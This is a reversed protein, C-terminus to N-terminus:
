FQRFSLKHSQKRAYKGNKAAIKRVIKETANKGSSSVYDTDFFDEPLHVKMKKYPVLISISPKSIPAIEGRNYYLELGEKTFAMVKAIPLNNLDYNLGTVGRLADKSLHNDKCYIEAVNEMFAVTDAILTKPDFIEGTERNINVAHSRVIPLVAGVEAYQDIFLSCIYNNLFYSWTSVHVYNIKDISKRLGLDGLTEGNAELVAVLAEQSDISLSDKNLNYENFIAYTERNLLDAYDGDEFEPFYVQVTFHDEYNEYVVDLITADYKSQAHLAMSTFLSLAAILFTRKLM